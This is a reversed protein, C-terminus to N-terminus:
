STGSINADVVRVNRRLRPHDLRRLPTGASVSLWGDRDLAELEELVLAALHSRGGLPPSCSEPARQNWPCVAQCIDCGFVHAGLAGRLAPPIASRHEITLYSICRRADMRGPSTLAGTPCASLCATCKGCHPRGPEDPEMAVDTVLEGLLLESGFRHHILCTNKGVWGLGAREALAKELLPATDCATRWATGPVRAALFRGLRALRSRIVSHYDKRRAYRAIVVRRDRPADEAPEWADHYSMAVSIVTAAGPLFRRPDQRVFATEAMYAMEGHRGRAIWDALHEGGASLPAAATVGALTFELVETAYAKVDRSLQTDVSGHYLSTANGRYVEGM